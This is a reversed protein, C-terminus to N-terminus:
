DKKFRKALASKILEFSFGRRLLYKIVKEKELKNNIKSLYKDLCRNILDEEDIKNENFFDNILHQDIGYNILENKLGFISRPRFKNRQDVFWEIFKKDNLYDKQKLIKIVKEITEESFNYKIAKKKLFDRLEKETRPRFKLYFLAKNLLFEFENIM